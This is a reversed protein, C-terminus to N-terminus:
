VDCPCANNLCENVVTAISQDLTGDAKICLDSIRVYQVGKKSYEADKKCDRIEPCKARAFQMTNTSHHAPDFEIAVAHKWETAQHHVILVDASMSAKTKAQLRFEVFLWWEDRRKEILRKLQQVANRHGASNGGRPAGDCATCLFNPLSSNGAM